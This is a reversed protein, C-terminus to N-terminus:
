INSSNNRLSADIIVNGGEAVFPILIKGNHSQPRDIALREALPSALRIAKRSQAINHSLFHGPKAAETNEISNLLPASDRFYLLSYLRCLDHYNDAAVKRRQYGQPHLLTYIYILRSCRDRFKVPTENGEEDILLVDYRSGTNNKDALRVEVAVLPPKLHQDAAMYEALRQKIEDISMKDIIDFIKM